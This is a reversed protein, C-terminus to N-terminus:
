GGIGTVYQALRTIFAGVLVFGAGIALLSLHWLLIARLGSGRREPRNDNAPLAGRRKGVRSFSDRGDIWRRLM